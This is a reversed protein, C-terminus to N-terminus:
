PLKLAQRTFILTTVLKSTCRATYTLDPGDGLPSSSVASLELMMWKLILDVALRPNPGKLVATRLASCNSITYIWRGGGPSRSTTRQRSDAPICYIRMRQARSISHEPAVARFDWKTWTPKIKLPQAVGLVCYLMTPSAPTRWLAVWVLPDQHLNITM